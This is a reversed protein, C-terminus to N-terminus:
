GVIEPGRVSKGPAAHEREMVRGSEEPKDLKPPTEVAPAEEMEPAEKAELGWGVSEGVHRGLHWVVEMSLRTGALGVCVWAFVMSTVRGMEPIKAFPGWTGETDAWAKAVKYAGRLLLVQAVWTKWAAAKKESVAIAVDVNAALTLAASRAALKTVAELAELAKQAALIALEEPSDPSAVVATLKAAKSAARVAAGQAALSTYVYVLLAAMNTYYLAWTAALCVYPAAARLMRWSQRPPYSAFWAVAVAALIHWHLFSLLPQLPQLPRPLRPPM